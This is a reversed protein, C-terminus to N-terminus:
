GAAHRVPAACPVARVGSWLGALSKKAHLLRHFGSSHPTNSGGRGIYVGPRWVRLAEWQWASRVANM